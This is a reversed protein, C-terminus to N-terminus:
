GKLEKIKNAINHVIKSYNFGVVDDVDDDDDDLIKMADLLGAKDDKDKESILIYSSVVQGGNRFFFIFTSYKSKKGNKYHAGINLLRNAPLSQLFRAVAKRSLGSEVAKKFLAIRCLDAEDYVNRTGHGSAQQVSPTIWEHELWVQMRNIKVECIKEVDSALFEM